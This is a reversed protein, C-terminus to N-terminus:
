ITGSVDEHGQTDEEEYDYTLEEKNQADLLYKELVAFSVNINNICFELLEFDNFELNRLLFKMNYFKKSIKELDTLVGRLKNMEKREEINEKNSNKLLSGFNEFHFYYLFEFYEDDYFNKKPFLNKALEVDIKGDSNCFKNLFGFIQKLNHFITSQSSKSLVSKHTQRIQKTRNEFINEHENEQKYKTILFTKKHLKNDDMMSTNSYITSMNKLWGSILDSLYIEKRKKELKIRDSIEIVLESFLGKINDIEAKLDKEETDDFTEIKIYLFKYFNYIDIFYYIFSFPIGLFFFKVFDYLMLRSLFNKLSFIYCYVLM